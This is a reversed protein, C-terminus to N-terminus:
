CSQMTQLMCIKVIDDCSLLSMVNPVSGTKTRSAATGIHSQITLMSRVYINTETM